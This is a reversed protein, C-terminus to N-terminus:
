YDDSILWRRILGYIVIIGLYGVIVIAFKDQMFSYFNDSMSFWFFTLMTWILFIFGMIMGFPTM